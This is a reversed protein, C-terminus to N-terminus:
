RDETETGPPLLGLFTARAADLSERRSATFRIDVCWRQTRMKPYSGVEVDPYQRATAAAADALLYESLYVRVTAHHHESPVLYPRLLPLQNEMLTPVGPFIFVNGVKVPPFPYTGGDLLEAGEPITAMRMAAANLSDKFRQRAVQELRPDVQLPRNLGKAIADFTMDDHTPGIGGTTIVVDFRRSFEAVKDAIRPVDDPITAIEELRVGHSALERAIFTSNTDATAGCLIENGIIILGANMTKRALQIGVDAALIAGVVPSELGLM